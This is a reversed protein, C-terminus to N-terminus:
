IEGTVLDSVLERKKRSFHSLIRFLRARITIGPQGYGFFWRDGASRSRNLESSADSGSPFRDTQLDVSDSPNPKVSFSGYNTLGGYGRIDLGVYEGQYGFTLAGGFMRAVQLGSLFDLGLYFRYKSTVMTSLFSDPAPVKFERIEEARLNPSLAILLAFSLVFPIRM